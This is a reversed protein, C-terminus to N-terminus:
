ATQLLTSVRHRDGSADGVIGYAAKAIVQATNLYAAALSEASLSEAVPTEPVVTKSLGQTQESENWGAKALADELSVRAASRPQTFDSRGSASVYETSSSVLPPATYVLPDSAAPESPQYAPPTQEPEPPPVAAVQQQEQRQQGPPVIGSNGVTILAGGINSILSM